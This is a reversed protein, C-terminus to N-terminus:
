HLSVEGKEMELRGTAIQRCRLAVAINETTRLLWSRSCDNTTEFRPVESPEEHLHLKEQGTPRINSGVQVESFVTLAARKGQLDSNAVPAEGVAALAMRGCEFNIEACTRGLFDTSILGAVETPLPCVLFTHDFERGGLTFSVLERGKIDLTEGTVGFPRLSIDRM